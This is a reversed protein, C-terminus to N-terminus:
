FIRKKDKARAEGIAARITEDTLEIRPNLVYDAVLSIEGCKTEARNNKIQWDAVSFNLPSALANVVEGLTKLDFRPEYFIEIQYLRRDFFRLYLARVGRVSEPAPKKIYNQFFTREGNKKIKIKLNRGFVSQVQEPSKGIQLNFLLPATKRTFDCNTQATGAAAFVLSFLILIASKAFANKM